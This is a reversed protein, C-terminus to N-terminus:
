HPSGAAALVRVIVRPHKLSLDNSREIDVLQRVWPYRLCVADLWGPIAAYRELLRALSVANVDPMQEDISGEDIWQQCAEVLATAWEAGPAFQGKIALGLATSVIDTRFRLLVGMLHRRLLAQRQEDPLGGSLHPAMAALMLAWERPDWFPLLHGREVAPLGLGEMLLFYGDFADNRLGNAAAPRWLSEFLKRAERTRPEGEPLFELFLRMAGMPSLKPVGVWSVQHVARNMHRSLDLLMSWGPRWADTSAPPEPFPGAVAGLQGALHCLHDLGSVLPADPTWPARIPALLDALDIREACNLILWKLGDADLQPSRIAQVFLDSLLARLEPGGPEGDLLGLVAPKVADDLLLHDLLWQRLCPVIPLAETTGMSQLLACARFAATFQRAPDIWRDDTVTKLTKWDVVLGVQALEARVAQLVDTEYGQSLSQAGMARLEKMCAVALWLDGHRMARGFQGVPGHNLRKAVAGTQRAEADSMPSGDLQALIQSLGDLLVQACAFGPPWSAVQLAVFLGSLRVLCEGRRPSHAAQLLAVHLVAEIDPSPLRRILDVDLM